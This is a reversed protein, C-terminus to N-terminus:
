KIEVLKGNEMKVPYVPMGVDRGTLDYNGNVGSMQGLKSFNSVFDKPDFDKAFVKAISQLNDYGVSTYGLSNGELKLGNATAMARFSDYEPTGAIAVKPATLYTGEFTTPDKYVLSGFVPILNNYIAAKINNSKINKVVPIANIAIVYIAEPNKQKLKLLPTAYDTTDGLFSEVAVIKIGAKEAEVKFGDYSAQGYESKLYIVGVTKVKNKVMAPIIAAADDATRPFFSVANDNKSLVDAFVVSVFLPKGSEKVLPSIAVSPVSMTTLILDPSKLMLANLSSIGEKALNQNDELYLVIGMGNVGGRSNIESQAMKLGDLYSNGIFASPGTLPLSVGIVIPKGTTSKAAQQLQKANQMGCGALVIVLAIAALGLYIKKSM